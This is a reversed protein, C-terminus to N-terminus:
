KALVFKGDMVKVQNFSKQADGMDDFMTNGTVGPYEIGAVADRIAARDTSDADTIATLLIGMSDYAQATLSSPASGYAEVYSDVFTRVAPDPSEHFFITPFHVNEVNEKGLNILEENYANSFGVFNMDAGISAAANAIGAFPRYMGIVIITDVDANSMSTMLTNFDTETDNFVVENVVMAESYNEFHANVSKQTAKGWDNNLVALGINKGGLNKVAMEVSVGAEVSIVSNNRFIFDGEGTYDPHSASPSIEVIGAAQYTPSAAMCVGSAFHGVVAVFSDDSVIREAIIAAEKPDNKDDFAVVEVQRGLVGGDANWQAAMLEVAQKFGKGYEAYDGTQPGVVAIKVTAEAEDAGGGGGCGAFSSIVLVVALLIAIRKKM